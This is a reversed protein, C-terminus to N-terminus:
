LVGNEASVLSVDGLLPWMLRHVPGLDEHLHRVQSRDARTVGLPHQADLQVRGSIKWREEQLHEVFTITVNIVDIGITAIAVATVAESIRGCTRHAAASRQSSPIEPRVECDTEADISCEQKTM